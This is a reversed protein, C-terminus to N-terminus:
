LLGTQLSKIQTVRVQRRRVLVANYNDSNDNDSSNNNIITTHAACVPGSLQGPMSGQLSTINGLASKQITNKSM